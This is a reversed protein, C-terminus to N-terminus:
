PRSVAKIELFDDMGFHGGERGLGSMKYGGFPSGWNIDSGNLRVMGARLAKAVRMGRAEDGTEIFAALGYPTDNAIAIAEEEGEFPIMTLVPGFIEERAITMENTANGFVTPKCFYGVNRGEPKGTGGALLTAGEDIGKQILAQVKDYQMQSVLPGIHRGDKAPDGVETAEAAAKAIQMAEDYVSKEVLMRTPANCSQGTNNFVARAGRTVSSQLDPTDAFVVNPSKGGLELAVRKVTDAADKTVAVGGRTSGTFSMMQVDKHRSLASGVVPGEGNVLNFVGKPVGAEHLIEAYLMASLPTLESPKLVMTCGAALAPAIKLVMQNMPWNWPTILGCVGIPERLIIDGCCTSEFEYEKLADIFGQLHGVGVGAQAAHSLKCPAGMEASIADAMEDYRTKYVALISELLDIREVKTTKSFGPFAANAAKVAADADAESGMSIVAIVEETAPNIVDLDTASIPAVWEGGIFFKRKDLM